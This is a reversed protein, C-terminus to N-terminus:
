SAALVETNHEEIDQQVEKIDQSLGQRMGSKFVTGGWFSIGAGGAAALTFGVGLTFQAQILSIGVAIGFASPLTGAGCTLAFGAISGAILLIGLVALLCGVVKKGVSPSGSSVDAMRGLRSAVSLNNANTVVTNLDRIMKTYLYYDIVENKLVKAEVETKISQMAKVVHVQLRTKPNTHDAAFNNLEQQFVRAEELKLDAETMVFIQSKVKKINEFHFDSTLGTSMVDPLDGREVIHTDELLYNLLEIFEQDKGENILNRRMDWVFGCLLLFNKQNFQTISHGEGELLSSLKSKYNLLCIRVQPSLNVFHKEEYASFAKIIRQKFIEVLQGPNERLTKLFLEGAPIQQQLWYLRTRLMNLQSSAQSIISEHQQMQSVLANRQGQLGSLDSQLTALQGAILIDGVAHLFSSGHHHHSHNHHHGHHHNHQQNYHYDRDQQMRIQINIIQLDVSSIQTLVSQLQSQLPLLLTSHTSILNMKTQIQSEIIPIERNWEGINTENYVIMTVPM